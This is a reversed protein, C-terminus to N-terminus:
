LGLAGRSRDVHDIDMALEKHPITLNCGRFGLVPLARLAQEIKEPNVSLLCIPGTSRM